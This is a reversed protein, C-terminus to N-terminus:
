GDADRQDPWLHLVAPQQEDAAHGRPPLGNERALRRAGGGRARSSQDAGSEPGTEASGGRDAQSRRRLPHGAAFSQWPGLLSITQGPAIQPELWFAGGVLGSLPFDGGTPRGTLKICLVNGTPKLMATLDVTRLPHLFNDVQQGNLYLSFSTWCYGLLGTANLTIRQNKWAAPLAFPRSRFLGVGSYDKLDDFQLNWPENDAARWAAASATSDALAPATWDDTKSVTGDRDALFQWQDFSIVPPNAPDEPPPALAPTVPYRRTWFKTKEKWWVEV